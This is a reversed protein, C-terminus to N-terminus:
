HEDDGYGLRSSAYHFVNGPLGRQRYALCALGGGGAFGVGSGVAGGTVLGTAGGVAIGIPISLGFTFVAPVLGVLAGVTGGGLAGAAAGATGLAISGAGAGLASVQVQRNAAASKMFETSKLAKDKTYVASNRVGDRVKRNAAKVANTPRAVFLDYVDYLKASVYVASSRIERRFYAFFIGSSAGGVFGASSGTLAGCLVGGAGGLVAGVPLSLGFTFLAPVAGLCLGFASGVTAGIVAGVSGLCLAGGSGALVAALAQPDEEEALLAHLKPNQVVRLARSPMSYLMSAFLVVYAKVDHALKGRSRWATQVLKKVPEALEEFFSFLKVQTEETAAASRSRMSSRAVAGDGVAAMVPSLDLPDRILLRQSGTM